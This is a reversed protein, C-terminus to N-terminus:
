LTPMIVFLSNPLDRNRNALKAIKSKRSLPVLLPSSACLTIKSSHRTWEEYLTYGEVL